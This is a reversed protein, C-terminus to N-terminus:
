SRNARWFRNQSHKAHFGATLEFGLWYPTSEFATALKQVIM